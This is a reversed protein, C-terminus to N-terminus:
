MKSNVKKYSYYESIIADFLLNGIIEAGKPNFHTYDPSALPPDANVWSPMSNHGGMAAYLDWFACGAKFAAKKQAERILEINPYSVYNGDENTSMDSVGIVLICAKPYQKRFNNLVKYYWNQYFDYNAVVNPVVNVGFQFILMQTNMLNLETCLYANNLRNFDTGSSGRMPVNDFTIGAQSDFSVGYVDPTSESTIEIKVEVPIEAIPWTKIRFGSGRALSDSFKLKSDFYVKIQTNATVNGYYFNIEQFNNSKSLSKGERSYTVWGTRIKNQPHASDKAIHFVCAAPGYDKSTCNKYLGGYIAYKVWNDSQKIRWSTRVDVVEMVPLIGSGSGSFIAEFKRRLTSTIRDAEIQSDGYHFVRILKKTVPLSDLSAFFPQLLRDQKAPYEIKYKFDLLKSIISDAPQHIVIKANALRFTDPLLSDGSKAVEINKTTIIKHIDAYKINEPHLAKDESLFKIKFDVTDNLYPVIFNIPLKGSPVLWIFLALLGQVLILLLFVKLPKVTM